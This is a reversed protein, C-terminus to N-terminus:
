QTRRWVWPKVQDSEPLAWLGRQFHQAERELRALEEDSSYRRYVWAAGEQVMRANVSQSEGRGLYLTGVLRGYRDVDDVDVQVLHRNVLYSLLQKSEPGYPANSEPADIEALRVKVERGDNLRLAVTDGDIVRTVVGRIVRETVVEEQGISAIDELLGHAYNALGTTGFWGMAFFGIGALSYMVGKKRLFLRSFSYCQSRTLM